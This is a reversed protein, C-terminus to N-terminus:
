LGFKQSYKVIEKLEAFEKEAIKEKILIWYKEWYGCFENMKEKKSFAKMLFFIVERFYRSKKLDSTDSDEAIEKLESLGIDIAEEYLKKKLLFDLSDSLKELYM